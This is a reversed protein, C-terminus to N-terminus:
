IAFNQAVIEPFLKGKYTKGFMKKAITPIKMSDFNYDIERTKYIKRMFRMGLLFLLTPVSFSESGVKYVKYRRDRGDYSIKLRVLFNEEFSVSYKYSRRNRERNFCVLTQRQRTMHYSTNNNNSSVVKDYVHDVFENLSKLDYTTSHEYLAFSLETDIKPVIDRFSRCTSRIYVRSLTDVTSFITYLVENPIHQINTTSTENTHARKRKM